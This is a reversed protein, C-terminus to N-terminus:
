DNLDICIWSGDKKPIHYINKQSSQIRVSYPNPQEVELFNSYKHNYKFQLVYDSFWTKILDNSSKFIHDRLLDNTVLYCQKKIFCALLFFLDDNVNSPTKYVYCIKNLYKLSNRIDKKTEESWDFNLNFHKQHLILLVKNTKSLYEISNLLRHYSRVSIKGNVSHLINAGDIVLDYNYKKFQLSAKEFFTKDKKQKNISEQTYKKLLIIEEDTFTKKGLSIDTYPCTYEEKTVSFEQECKISVRIPSGLFINLIKGFSKNKRCYLLFFDIDDSTIKFKRNWYQLFFSIMSDINGEEQYYNIFLFLHRKHYIKTKILKKFIDLAPVIKKGYLNYRLMLTYVNNSDFCSFIEQNSTILNEAFKLNRKDLFQYLQHCIRNKNNKHKKKNKKTHPM